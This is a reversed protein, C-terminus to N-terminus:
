GWFLPPMARSFQRQGSTIAAAVFHAQLLQARVARVPSNAKVWVLIGKNPMMDEATQVIADKVQNESM